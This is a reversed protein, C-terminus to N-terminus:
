YIEKTKGSSTSLEEDDETDEDEYMFDALVMDLFFSLMLSVRFVKSKSMLDFFM